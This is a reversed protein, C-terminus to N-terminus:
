STGKAFKLQPSGVYAPFTKTGQSVDYGIGVLSVYDRYNSVDPDAELAAKLKAPDGMASITFPPSYVRGQLILTNGVCRVASTSIVRQDMLMMSSAGGKWLANVVSQVDQQHVLLWNPDTDAPMTSIDRKSDNLTVTVTQGTVATFGAPGALADAKQAIVQAQGNSNKRTLDDVEKQLTGVTRQQKEVRWDADRVVGALSKQEPRLDTGQSTAASVGFLVGGALAVLPVAYFWPSRRGNTRTPM